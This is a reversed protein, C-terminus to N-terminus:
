RWAGPRGRLRLSIAALHSGAYGAEVIPASTETAPRVITEHTHGAIVASVGDIGAIIGAANEARPVAGNGHGGHSLAVIVDADRAKLSLVARQAAVVVDLATAWNSDNAPPLWVLLRKTALPRAAILLVPRVWSRSRKALM